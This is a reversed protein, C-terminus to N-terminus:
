DPATRARVGAVKVSGSASRVPAAPQRSPLPKVLTVPEGDVLFAAPRLAFLKQRGHRDELVVQGYEFRVVAGCFGTVPDEVVVGPDAALEPVTKRKRGALVDRGYDESRM